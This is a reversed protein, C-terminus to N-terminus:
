GIRDVIWFLSCSFLLPLTLSLSFMFWVSVFCCIVRFVLHDAVGSISGAQTLRMNEAVESILGAQTSVRDTKSADICSKRLVVMFREMSSRNLRALYELSVREFDETLDGLRLSSTQIGGPWTFHNRDWEAWISFRDVKSVEIRLKWLIIMVREM